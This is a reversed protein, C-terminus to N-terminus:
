RDGSSSGITKERNRAGSGEKGRLLYELGKFQDLRTSLGHIESSLGDVSHRTNEGLVRLENAAETADKQVNEISAKHANADVRAAAIQDSLGDLSYCIRWVAILFVLTLFYLRM